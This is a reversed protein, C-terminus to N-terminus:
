ILKGKTEPRPAKVVLFRFDADFPNMLRHPVKAPSDVATDRDIVKVEDGIEVQGKGELVYFFVDVPTVHRKLEQGPLLTIHVAQASEHDYVTRVAVGHPNKREEMEALRTVKM